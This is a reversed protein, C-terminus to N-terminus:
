WACSLMPLQGRLQGPEHDYPCDLQRGEHGGTISYVLQERPKSRKDQGLSLHLNNVVVVLVGKLTQLPKVGLCRATNDVEKSTTKRTFCMKVEALHGKEGHDAMEWIIREKGM